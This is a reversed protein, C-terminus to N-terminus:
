NMSGTVSMRRVVNQFVVLLSSHSKLAFDHPHQQGRNGNEDLSATCSAKVSTFIRKCARYNTCQHLFRRSVRRFGGSGSEAMSPALRDAGAAALLTWYSIAPSGSSCDTNILM